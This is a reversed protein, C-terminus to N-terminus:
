RVPGGQLYSDHPLPPPEMREAARGRIRSFLYLNVLHMAGLVLFVMGLKRSLLELADRWGPVAEATRMQFLFYGANILYFGVVLLRNVARAMATDGSFSSILFVEGNQALTRAVLVTAAASIALYTLYATEVYM